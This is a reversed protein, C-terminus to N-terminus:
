AEARREAVLSEVQAIEVRELRGGVRRTSKCQPHDRTSTMSSSPKTMPHRASPTAAASCWTTSAPNKTATPSVILRSRWEIAVACTLDDAARYIDMKWNGYIDIAPGDSITGKLLCNLILVRAAAPAPFTAYQVASAAIGGPRAAHLDARIPSSRPMRAHDQLLDVNQNRIEEWAPLAARRSVGAQVRAKRGSNLFAKFDFERLKSQATAAESV